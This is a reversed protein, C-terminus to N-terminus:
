LDLLDAPRDIVVEGAQLEARPFQRFGFGYSALCVRTGANRATRWDVASDGVMTTENVSVGARACLHVLGAPDPKRPFPGDGGIV